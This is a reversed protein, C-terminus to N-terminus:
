FRVTFGAGAGFESHYGLRASVHRSLLYEVDTHWEERTGTDYEYGLLLRTRPTMQLHKDLALRAEGENDVWLRSEIRFPLLYHIGAVIREENEVGASNEHREANIGAFWRVYRNKYYEYRAFAEYEFPEEGEGWSNEWSLVWTNRTNAATLKGTSMHSMPSFEGWAYYPDMFLKHRMAAIDADPPSNEYSVIRSMGSKMHYLVHCHFFWDKEENAAFEIVTRGMPAVDVTHKLPLDDPASGDSRLVRFFHGHLHMPHHMMTENILIFRVREGKRIRIADAESLTKGDMSWVYREMDGNLRLEVERLPASEDLATSDLAQLKDYPPM